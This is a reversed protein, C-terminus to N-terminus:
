HEFLLLPNIYFYSYGSRLAVRLELQHPDMPITIKREDKHKLEAVVPPNVFISERTVNIAQSNYDLSRCDSSLPQDHSSKGIM